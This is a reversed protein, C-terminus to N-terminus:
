PRRQIEPHTVRIQFINSETTVTQNRPYYIITSDYNSEQPALTLEVYDVDKWGNGDEADIILQIRKRCVNNSEM